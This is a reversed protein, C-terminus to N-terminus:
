NWPIRYHNKGADVLIWKRGLTNEKVHIGTVPVVVQRLTTGPWSAGAGSIAISANNIRSYDVLSTGTGEEFLLHCVMNPDGFRGTWPYQTYQWEDDTIDERHMRFEYYTMQSGTARGSYSALYFNDFTALDATASLGTDTDEATGNIYLTTTAGNRTVWLVIEEDVTTFQTTSTLTVTTADGDTIKVTITGDTGHVVSIPATAETTDACGVLCDDTLDQVSYAFWFTFRTGFNYESISSTDSKPITVYTTATGDIVLSQAPRTASVLRVMGPRRRLSEGILDVNKLVRHFQAPIQQRRLTTNM